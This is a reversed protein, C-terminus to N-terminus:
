RRPMAKIVAAVLDPDCGLSGFSFATGFEVRDAARRSCSHAHHPRNLRAIVARLVSRRRHPRGREVAERISAGALLMNPHSIGVHWATSRRAEVYTEAVVASKKRAGALRAEGLIIQM